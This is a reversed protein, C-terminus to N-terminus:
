VALSLSNMSKWRKISKWLHTMLRRIALAAYHITVLSLARSINSM